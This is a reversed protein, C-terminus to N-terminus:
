PQMESRRVSYQQAAFFSKLYRTMLVALAATVPLWIVAHVWLPPQFHVDVWFAAAVVIAGLVILIPVAFSDGTDFGSFNLGCVPCAPAITLLGRFLKGKGCRPCRCTLAAQAVGVGAEEAEGV